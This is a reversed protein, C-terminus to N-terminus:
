FPVESDDFDPPESFTPKPKPAQKQYTDDWPKIALSMFKGKKGEKIWAALSYKVGKVTISGTYAPSTDKTGKTNKFLIGSGDKQQYDSM